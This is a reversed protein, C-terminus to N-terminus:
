VRLHVDYWMYGNVVMDFAIVSLAIRSDEDVEDEGTNEAAGDVCDVVDPDLLEERLLLASALTALSGLAGGGSLLGHVRFLLDRHDASVTRGHRRARLAVILAPDRLSM